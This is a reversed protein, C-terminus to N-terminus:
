RAARTEKKKLNWLHLLKDELFQYYDPMDARCRKLIALKIENIRCSFLIRARNEDGKGKCCSRISSITPGTIAIFKKTVKEAADFVAKKEEGNLRGQSEQIANILAVYDKYEQSDKLLAIIEEAQL